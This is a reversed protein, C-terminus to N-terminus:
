QDVLDVLRVDLKRVVQQLLEIAHLEEDVLGFFEDPRLMTGDDHDRAVVFLFQRVREQSAAEKVVDLEGVLLRHAPDDVHM